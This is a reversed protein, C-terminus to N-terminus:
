SDEAVKSTEYNPHKDHLLLNPKVGVYKPLQSFDREFSQLSGYDMLDGHPSSMFVGRHTNLAVTNKLEGGLAFIPQDGTSPLTQPVLGKARRLLITRDGAIKLVSDDLGRSLPLNHTILFDAALTNATKNKFCIPEDSFNGSTAVIPLNLKKMLLHHLPTSPLMVGHDHFGPAINKAVPAGKDKLLVIPAVHSNLWKIELPSPQFNQIVWDLSAMLAFPKNPRQKTQRLRRIAEERDARVLLHFGSTSKLAIINGELIKNVIEDIPHSLQPGCDHCSNTQSHFRHSSPDHYEALCAACQTFRNITLNKRDYPMKSSLSFRPGCITCTTFPYQYRRNNPDLTENLCSDCIRTDPLIASAINQINESEQITFHDVKRLPADKVKLEQLSAGDPLQNRLSLLFNELSLQSGQAFIEVHSSLNKVYGKLKLETCMRYVFPRFGVGQVIGYCEVSLARDSM